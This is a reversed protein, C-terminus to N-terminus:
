GLLAVKLVFDQRKAVYMVCREAASKQSLRYIYIGCSPCVVCGEVVESGCFQCFRKEAHPPYGDINYVNQTEM